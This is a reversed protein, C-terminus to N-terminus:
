FLLHAYGKVIDWLKSATSQYTGPKLAKIVAQVLEDYHTILKTYADSSLFRIVHDIEGMEFSMAAVKVISAKVDSLLAQYSIKNTKKSLAEAYVGVTLLVGMLKHLQGECNQLIGNLKQIKQDLDSKPSLKGTNSKSSNQPNLLKPLEEFQTSLLDQIDAFEPAQMIELIVAEHKPFINDFFENGLAQLLAPAKASMGEIRKAFSNLVLLDAIGCGAKRAITVVEQKISKLSEQTFPNEKKLKEIISALELNQLSKELSMMIKANTPQLAADAHIGSILLGTFALTCTISQLSFNKM